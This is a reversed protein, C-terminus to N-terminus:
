RAHIETRTYMVTYDVLAYDIAQLFFRTRGDMRGDTRGREELQQCEEIAVHCNEDGRACSFNVERM